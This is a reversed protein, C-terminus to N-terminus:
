GAPWKIRADKTIENMPWWCIRMDLWAAMRGSYLVLEALVSELDVEGQEICAMGYELTAGVDNMHCFGAVRSVAAEIAFIAIDKKQEDGYRAKDNWLRWLLEHVKRLEAEAMSLPGYPIMLGERDLLHQVDAPPQIWAAQRASRLRAWSDDGMIPPDVHAPGEEGEMYIHATFLKQGQERRNTDAYDRLWSVDGEMQGLYSIPASEAQLEDYTIELYQREPWFFFSGPAMTMVDVVSEVREVFSVPWMIHCGAIKACHIDAMAPLNVKLASLTKPALEDTLNIRYARTDVEFILTGADM